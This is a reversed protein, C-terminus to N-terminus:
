QNAILVEGCGMAPAAADFWPPALHSRRVTKPVSLQSLAAAGARHGATRQSGM